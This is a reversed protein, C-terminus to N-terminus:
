DGPNRGETKSPTTLRDFWWLRFLFAGSGVIFEQKFTTAAPKLRRFGFISEKGADPNYSFM